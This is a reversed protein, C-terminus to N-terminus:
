SLRWDASPPDPHLVGTSGIDGTSSSTVVRGEVGSPASGGVGVEEADAVGEEMRLLLRVDDTVRNDLSRLGESSMDFGDRHVVGMLSTGGYSGLCKGKLSAM